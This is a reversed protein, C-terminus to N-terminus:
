GDDRSTSLTLAAPSEWGNAAGFGGIGGLAARLKTVLSTNEAELRSATERAAWTDRKLRDM